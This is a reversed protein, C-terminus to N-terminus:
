DDMGDIWDHLIRYHESELSGSPKPMSGIDGYDRLSRILWSAEPNGPDVLGAAVFEPDTGFEAFAEVTQGSYGTTGTSTATKSV